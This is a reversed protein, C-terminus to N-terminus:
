HGYCLPWACSCESSSTRPWYGPFGRCSGVTLFVTLGTLPQPSTIAYFASLEGTQVLINASSPPLLACLGHTEALLTPQLPGQTNPVATGLPCSATVLISDSVTSAKGRARTTNWGLVMSGTLRGVKGLEMKKSSNVNAEAASGLPWRLTAHPPCPLAPVQGVAGAMCPAHCDPVTM